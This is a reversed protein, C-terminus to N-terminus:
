PRRSAMPTIPKISPLAGAMTSRSGTKTHQESVPQCGIGVSGMSSGTSSSCRTFTSHWTRLRRRVRARHETCCAPKGSTPSGTSIRKLKRSDVRRWRNVVQDRRGRSTIKAHSRNFWAWAAAVIEEHCHFDGLLNRTLMESSQLGFVPILKRRGSTAPKRFLWALKSHRRSTLARSLTVSQVSPPLGSELATM